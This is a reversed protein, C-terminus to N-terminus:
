TSHLSQSAVKKKYQLPTMRFAQKFTRIFHSPNEFGSEFTLENVNKDTTELLHRAYELKKRALWKGPTTKFMSIFDRKFSPLSRGSLQAFQELKMNYIFNREMVERMCTKNEQCLSLFYGALLRNQVANDKEANLKGFVSYALECNEIVAGDELM